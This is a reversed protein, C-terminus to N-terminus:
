WLMRLIWISIDMRLYLLMVAVIGVIGIGVINTITENHTMRSIRVGGYAVLGFTLAKLAFVILLFVGINLNGTLQVLTLDSLKQSLVTFNDIRYFHALLPFETLIFIALTGIAACINKRVNLYARGNKTARLLPMIKKKEDSPYIGSLWIIAAATGMFWFSIDAKVDDWLGLYAKEDVWYKDYLNGEKQQLAELQTVLMQVGDEKFEIEAKLQLILISDKGTTDSGIQKMQQYLDEIYAQESYVFAISEETVKGALRSMYTHYQAIGAESYYQNKGASVIEFACVVLLFLLMWGKKQQMLVKSCEFRLLKTHGWFFRTKKRMWIQLKELRSESRIQCSYHFLIIGGISGGIILIVAVILACGAKSAAYGGINLNQYVALSQKMNWCYFPNICKLGNLTGTISLSKGAWFEFGLLLGMSLMALLENRVAISVLFLTVALVEAILLRIIFLTLIATLVSMQYPCNRFESISQISRSLNGYGYFYGLLLVTSGEQFVEYIFTLFMMTGLKAAALPTHGRKTGKVLLLLGQNREFYFIFYSLIALFVFLFFIGWEYKALERVGFCNDAVVTIGSLKGFDDCTKELNRYVYSTEDAYTSLGKLEDARSAMENLFQPYAALYKEQQEMEWQYYGDIDAQKDGSLFSQYQSKQEYVYYFASQNKEYMYLTLLNGFVLVISLIIFIRKKSIKILEFQWISKM